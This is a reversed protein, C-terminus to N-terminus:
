ENEKGQQRIMKRWFTQKSKKERMAATEYVVLFGDEFHDLFSSQNANKRYRM